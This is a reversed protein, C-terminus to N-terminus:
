YFSFTTRGKTVCLIQKSMMDNKLHKEIGEFDKRTITEFLIFTDRWEQKFVCVFVMQEKPQELDLPRRNSEMQWIYM